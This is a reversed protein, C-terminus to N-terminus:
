PAATSPRALSPAPSPRLGYLAAYAGEFFLTRRVYLRSEAIPISEIFADAPLAGLDAKWRRARAPGANYAALALITDGEFADLLQRLYAVGLRVNVAPNLLDPRQRRGGQRELQRGTAPMLQMLGLAGARSRVNTTFASEQRVLGFVLAPPVAAASASEELLDARSRPYYLRRAPLPVAGEEPSGLEPWRRKLLAVARRHDGRESAIAALFVPDTDGEAEAADEALDPLGCALLERSRSGPVSPDLGTVVPGPIEQPPGGPAPVGLITAAWIAYVDPSTGTLLSAYLLRAASGQGAKERAHGAWYTARRRTPVDRYLSIQEELSIAAEDFRGTRAADFAGLFLEESLVTSSPDILVLEAVLRRAEAVQGSRLALRAADGLLRRRDSDALPRALLEAARSRLAAAHRSAEDSFPKPPTPPTTVVRKQRREGRRGSAEARGQRLLGIMEADLELAAARLAYPESDAPSPPTRLLRLAGKTDGLALRAEAVDLRAARSAPSRPLLAAAEKPSRRALFLARAARIEEPATRLAADFEKLDTEDFLDAAREPADPWGAALALRLRRAEAPTGAVRAGALALDIDARPGRPARAEWTALADRTARKEAETRARRAALTAADRALPEFPEAAAWSLLGLVGPRSRTLALWSGLGPLGLRDTEPAAEEESGPLRGPLALVNLAVGLRVAWLDTRAALSAGLAAASPSASGEERLVRRIEALREEPGSLFAAPEDAGRCTSRVLSFVLLVCAPARRLPRGM